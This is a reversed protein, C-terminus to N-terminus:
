FEIAYVKLTISRLKTKKEFFKSLKKNKENYYVNEGGSRHILPCKCVDMITKFM